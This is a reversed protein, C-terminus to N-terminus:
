GPAVLKTTNSESVTKAARRLRKAEDRIQGIIPDLRGTGRYDFVTGDATEVPTVVIAETLRGRLVARAVAANGQLLHQLSDIIRHALADQLSQDAEHFWEHQRWGNVEILARWHEEDINFGAEAEREAAREAIQTLQGAANDRALQKRKMADVLAPIAGAVSAVAEVLRQIDADLRRIDASM